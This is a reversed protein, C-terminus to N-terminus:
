ARDVYEGTETNVRVADGENIFLPVTVALGTELKALKTGGTATDGKVGPTTEVVKLTMKPPLSISIMNNEYFVGDVSTGDLLYPMVGELTGLDIEFQEFSNENMFFANEADSYLYQVKENKVDAFEFSEGAVFTKELVAGSILNKLKTKNVPKQAQKRKFQSKVILYPENKYKLVKGIRLDMLTAAM